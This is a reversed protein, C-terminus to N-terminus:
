RLAGELAADEEDEVQELRQAETLADERPADPVAVEPDVVMGRDIERQESGCALGGLALPLSLPALLMAFRLPIM